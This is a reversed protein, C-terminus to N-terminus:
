PRAGTYRAESWMEEDRSSPVPVGLRNAKILFRNTQIADIEEKILYEELIAESLLRQYDERPIKADKAARLKQGYESNTADLCRQLKRLKNWRRLLEM